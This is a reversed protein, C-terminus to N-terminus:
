LIINPVDCINFLMNAHIPYICLYREFYTFLDSRLSPMFTLIINFNINLFCLTPYPIFGNPHSPLTWNRVKM